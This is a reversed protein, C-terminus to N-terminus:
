LGSVDINRRAHFIIVFRTGSFNTYFVGAFAPTKENTQFQLFDVQTRQTDITIILIFTSFLGGILIPTKIKSITWFKQM